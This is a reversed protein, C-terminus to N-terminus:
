KWAGISMHNGACTVDFFNLHIKKQPAMKCHSSDSSPHILAGAISSCFSSPLLYTNMLLIV